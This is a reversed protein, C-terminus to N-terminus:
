LINSSLIKFAKDKHKEQLGGNEIKYTFYITKVVHKELGYKKYELLPFDDYLILFNSCSNNQLWTAIELPRNNKIIPTIDYIEMNYKSLTDVLHKWMKQASKESIDKLERWTSSLVIKCNFKHYIQSLIDVSKLNLDNGTEKYYAYSNLVGDIDLFIINM